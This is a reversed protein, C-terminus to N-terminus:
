SIIYTAKRVDELDLTGIWPVEVIGNPDLQKGITELPKAEMIEIYSEKFCRQIEKWNNPHVLFCDHITGIDGKFRDVAGYLITSDLSHIINPAIANSQSRTDLKDTQYQVSLQGLFTKYRHTEFKFSSQMIPFNYIPTTWCAPEKLDKVCDKFYEQGLVGGHILETIAKHNLTAILRVVVWFEGEWFQNGAFKMDELESRLQDQMGRFTVSYVFTMVNRKVLGRTIKGVISHAEIATSVRREVGEADKFEFEIPYDGEELYQNVKKSIKDYIDARIVEGDENYTNVVNVSEAGVKDMLLGSYVQIGSCTSDFGTPLHVKLGKLHDDLAMCGALFEFPSDAENWYYCSEIPDQAAELIKEINEEVWRIRDKFSVKDFGYSNAIHIKLGEVGTETLYEGNSFELMAKIYSPQQVSLFTPKPYIRGRYDLQQPFYINDYDALKTYVGLAFILALRKGKEKDLIISMENKDKTYNHYAERELQWGDILEGYDEKRIIDKIDINNATPLDGILKTLRSMNSHDVMNSEFIDTILDVIRRNFRWSVSQLKNVIPLVKSLDKSKTFDRQIKHISKMLPIKDNIYGGKLSSDYAIPEVIMPLRNAISMINALNNRGITLISNTASDTLRLYYQKNGKSNFATYKEVINAGSNILIDILLAGIRTAIKKDKSYSDFDKLDEIHKKILFEKRRKNARKFENGLYAIFKPNHETINNYLDLTKLKNVIALAIQVTGQPKPNGLLSIVTSLVTLALVNTKTFMLLLLDKDKKIEGRHDSNLFESLAATYLPLTVKILSTGETTGDFRDQNIASTLENIYRQITEEKVENELEIQKEITAEM